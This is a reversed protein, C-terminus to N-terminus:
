RRAKVAKMDADIWITTGGVSWITLRRGSQCRSAMVIRGVSAFVEPWLAYKGNIGAAFGRLSNSRWFNGSLQMEAHQFDWTLSDLYCHRKFRLQLLRYCSQMWMTNRVSNYLVTTGDPVATYVTDDTSLSWTGGTDLLTLV